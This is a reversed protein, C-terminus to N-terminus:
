RSHVIASAGPPASSELPKDRLAVKRIEEDANLDSLIRQVGALARDRSFVAAM